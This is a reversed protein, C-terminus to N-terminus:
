TIEFFSFCCNEKDQIEIPDRPPGVGSARMRSVSRGQNFSPLGKLVQSSNFVDPDWCPCPSAILLPLMLPLLLGRKGMFEKGGTPSRVRGRLTCLFNCLPVKSFRWPRGGPIRRSTRWFLRGKDVSLLAIHGARGRILAQSIFFCFSSFFLLLHGLVRPGGAEAPSTSESYHRALARGLLVSHHHQDQSASTSRHSAQLNLALCDQIKKPGKLFHWSFM